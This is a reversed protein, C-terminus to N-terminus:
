VLGHEALRGDDGGLEFPEVTETEERDVRLRCYIACSTVVLRETPTRAICHTRTGSHTDPTRRM